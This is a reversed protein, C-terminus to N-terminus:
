FGVVVADQGWAVEQGPLRPPLLSLAASGHYLSTAQSFMPRGHPLCGSMWEPVKCAGGDRAQERQGARDARLARPLERLQRCAGARRSSHLNGRCSRQPEAEREHAEPRGAIRSAALKMPQRDFEPVSEGFLEAERQRRQGM